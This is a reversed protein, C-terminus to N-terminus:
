QSLRSIADAASGSREFRYAFPAIGRRVLEQLKDQRAAEVFSSM